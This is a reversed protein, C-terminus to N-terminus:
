GSGLLESLRDGARALRALAGTPVRNLQQYLRDGTEFFDHLARLRERTLEAVEPDRDMDAVCSRLAEITPKMERSRRRELIARFMEWVDGVTEFYDRRDGLRHAVRVIGWDQLERLSVSVHSRAIGLTDVIQEAHLPESSVYLLAHIQAITRNVGWRNGMEGWHLVFRQVVEPLEKM